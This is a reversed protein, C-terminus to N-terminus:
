RTSTRRKLEMVGRFCDRATLGGAVEGCDARETKRSEGIRVVESLWM